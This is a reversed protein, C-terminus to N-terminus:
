LFRRPFPKPNLFRLSKLTQSLVPQSRVGPGAGERQGGGGGGAATDWACTYVGWLCREGDKMDLLTTEPAHNERLLIFKPLFGLGDLCAKPGTPCPIRSYPTRTGCPTACSPAGPSWSPVDGQSRRSTAEHLLPEAPPGASLGKLYLVWTLHNHPPFPGEQRASSCYERLALLVSQCGCSLTIPAWIPSYLNSLATCPLPM